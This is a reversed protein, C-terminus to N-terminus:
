YFDKKETEILDSAVGCVVCVKRFVVEGLETLPCTIAQSTKQTMIFELTTSFMKGTLRRFSARERRLGDPLGVERLVTVM